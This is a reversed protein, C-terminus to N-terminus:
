EGYGYVNKRHGFEVVRITTSYERIVCVIWYYGFHYCHCGSLEGTLERPHFPKLVREELYKFIRQAWQKEINRLQRKAVGSYELRWNV